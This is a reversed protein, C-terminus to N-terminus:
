GGGPCWRGRGGRSRAGYSRFDNTAAPDSGFGRKRHYTAHDIMATLKAVEELM